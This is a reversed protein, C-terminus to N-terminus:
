KHVDDNTHTYHVDNIIYDNIIYDNIIYDNIICDNIIYIMMQTHTHTFTNHAYEHM